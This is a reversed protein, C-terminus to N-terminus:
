HYSLIVIYRTQNWSESTTPELYSNICIVNYKFTAPESTM